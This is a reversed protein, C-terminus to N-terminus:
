SFDCVSGRVSRNPDLSSNIANYFRPFLKVRTQKKHKLHLSINNNKCVKEQLKQKKKYEEEFKRILDPCNLKKESEWVYIIDGLPSKRKVFYYVTCGDIRKDLIQYVVFTKTDSVSM